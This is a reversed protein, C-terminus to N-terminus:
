KEQREECQLKGSLVEVTSGIAIKARGRGGCQYQYNTAPGILASCDVLMAEGEVQTTPLTVFAEGPGVTVHVSDSSWRYLTTGGQVAVFMQAGDYSGPGHYHEVNLYLVLTGGNKAKRTSAVIFDDDTAECSVAGRHEFGCPGNAILSSSGPSDEAPPPCYELQWDAASADSVTVVAADPVPSRTMIKVSRAPDESCGLTFLGV